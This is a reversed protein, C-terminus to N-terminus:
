VETSAFHHPFSYNERIRQDLEQQFTPCTKIYAEWTESFNTGQSKDRFDFWDDEDTYKLRNMEDQSVEYPDDIYDSEFMESDEEGIMEQLCKKADELNEAAVYDSDNLKYIKM